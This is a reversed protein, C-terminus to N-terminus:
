LREFRFQNYITSDSASTLQGYFTLAQTITSDFLASSSFDYVIATGVIVRMNSQTSFISSNSALM